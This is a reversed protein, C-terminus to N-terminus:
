RYQDITEPFWKEILFGCHTLIKTRVFGADISDLLNQGPRGRKKHTVEISSESAGLFTALEGECNSLQSTRLLLARNWDLRELLLRYHAAYQSLYTDRSVLGHARLVAEEPAYGRHREYWFYERYERWKPPDTRDHFNVRSRLWASPERVTVIFRAGPFAEQLGVALFGLPHSSDLELRLRRDRQLLSEKM